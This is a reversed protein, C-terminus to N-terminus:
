SFLGDWGKRSGKVGQIRATADIILRSDEGSPSPKAGMGRSPCHVFRFVTEEAALWTM